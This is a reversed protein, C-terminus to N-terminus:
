QLARPAVTRRWRGPTFGYQRVFSRTMHSQDAFGSRLAAESLAAGDRILMRAREVRRRLLWAHPPLGYAKEFRRLVQYPSLSTMAALEALTPPHLAEDALRERVMTLDRRRELAVDTSVAATGHRAMLLSCTSVLSEECALAAVSTGRREDWRQIRRFLARLARVLRADQLVPRTIERHTARGGVISPFVDTDIHVIRWSRTAGGLPRGDHVEGPNTTIVDGTYARVLGRGSVSAHAGRDLFGFGYGDHWHRGFHHGSVTHTAYVGRLPTRFVRAVHLSTQPM